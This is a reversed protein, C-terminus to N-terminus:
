IQVLSSVKDGLIQLFCYIGASSARACLIWSGNHSRFVCILRNDFASKGPNQSTNKGPRELIGPCVSHSQPILSHLQSFSLAFLLMITSSELYTRNRPIYRIYPDLLSHWPTLQCLTFECWAWFQSQVAANEADKQYCALGGLLDIRPLYTRWNVSLWQKWRRSFNLQPSPTTQLQKFFSQLLLSFHIWHDVCSAVEYNSLGGSKAFFLEQHYNRGMPQEGHAGIHIRLGRHVM